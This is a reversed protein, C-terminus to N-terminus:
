IKLSLNDVNKNLTCLSSNKNVISSSSIDSMKNKESSWYYDIANPNKYPSIITKSYFSSIGLKDNIM